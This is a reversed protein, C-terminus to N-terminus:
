NYTLIKILKNSLDIKSKVKISRGTNDIIFVRYPTITNAVIFDAKTKAMTVKAKKLLSSVSIGPELKFMILKTKPALKRMQRVIKPLMLLKLTHNKNSSLKGNTRTEPRFDAVAASHIIFDYRQSLLEKRVMMKLEKFFCFRFVKIKKNLRCSGVPGLILTVKAHLRRFREALLIGTEGSAVNSIVRVSDIPVWTPGATILIKKNKLNKM